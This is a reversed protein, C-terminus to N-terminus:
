GLHDWYMGGHFTMGGPHWETREVTAYGYRQVERRILYAHFQNSAFGMVGRRRRGRPPDYWGVVVFPPHIRLSVGYRQVIEELHLSPDSPVSGMM